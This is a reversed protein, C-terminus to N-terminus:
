VDQARLAPAPEQAGAARLMEAVQVHGQNDGITRSEGAVALALATLGNCEKNIDANSRLLLDVTGPNGNLAAFHLPTATASGCNMAVADVCAKYRLLLAAQAENGACAAFHLPTNNKFGVADVSAKNKLLLEAVRLHNEGDKMAAYHLPTNNDWDRCDINTDVALLQMAKDEDGRAAAKILASEDDMLCCLRGGMTGSFCCGMNLTTQQSRPFLSTPDEGFHPSTSFHVHYV